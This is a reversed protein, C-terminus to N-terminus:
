EEAYLGELQDALLSQVVADSPESDGILDKLDRVIESTIRGVLTAIYNYM